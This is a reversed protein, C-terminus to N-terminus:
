PIADTLNRAVRLLKSSVTLGARAAAGLNVDFRVRNEQVVFNIIGGRDLFSPTESVTLVSERGVRGLAERVRGQEARSVFLVHCRRADAASPLRVLVLRHGNWAEGRLTDDLISGFPDAGLVCVRLDSGPPLARSPWEVFKVFNFLYAAKVQYELSPSAQPRAAQAAALLGALGAAIARTLVAM